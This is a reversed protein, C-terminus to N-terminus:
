TRELPELQELDAGFTHKDWGQGASSRMILGGDGGAVIGGM